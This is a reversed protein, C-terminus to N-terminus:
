CVSLNTETAQQLVLHEGREQRTGVSYRNSRQDPQAEYRLSSRWVDLFECGRRESIDCARVPWASDELPKVRVVLDFGEAGRREIPNLLEIQINLEPYLLLFEDPLPELVFRAFAVPVAVCFCGRPTDMM